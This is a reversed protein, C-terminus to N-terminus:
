SHEEREPNEDRMADFLRTVSLIAARFTRLVSDESGLGRRVCEEVSVREVVLAFFVRRDGIPLGNVRVCTARALAPDIGARAGLAEYYGGDPSESLPVRRREEEFQEEILEKSAHLACADLWADLSLGADRRRAEFAVRAM